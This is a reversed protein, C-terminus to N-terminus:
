LEDKLKSAASSVSSGSDEVISSASSFVDSAGDTAKSALSSLRAQASELAVALRSTASELAGQPEGYIQVSARSQVSSYADGVASSADSAKDAAVSTASAYAGSAANLISEVPGTPTGYVATSLAGQASVFAGEIAVSAAELYGTQTGYVAESARSSASDYVSAAASTAQEYPGKSTGYVYISAADVASNFQENASDIIDEISSLPTVYAAAVSSASEYADSAYSSASSLASAPYPTEYVAHLKSMVSETFDPEKGVVLESVLGKLSEYQAARQDLVQQIYPTPTGYVQESARSILSDWNESAQSAVSEMRGTPTGYIASSASGSVSSLSASAASMAASYRSSADAIISQADEGKSGAASSASSVVAALSSSALSSAQSYYSKANDLADQFGSPPPTPAGLVAESASNVFASYHDHALGVAEYYRRQADLLVPNQNSTPTPSITAKVSAYQASALSLGESLKSSAISSVSELPGAVSSTGYYAASAASVAQNYKETAVSVISEGPSPTTGYLVSSAAALASSYQDSAISAANEKFGQSSPKGLLADSVANTAEAYRDGAKSALNQLEESFKQQELDDDVVDNVIEKKGPISQAAAGGWVKPTSPQDQAHTDEDTSYSESTEDASSENSDVTNQAGADVPEADVDETAQLPKQNETNEQRQFSPDETAQNATEDSATHSSTTQDEVHEETSSSPKPRTPPEQRTDFDDSVERAEIKWKGVEKLRTLERAAKEAIAMGRSLIDNALDRAEGLRENQMGVDRVESRWNEFQAKLAHYKAWDKYTVGDMWAWRMGIEQLGLDRIGDLIDLTSEVAASVRRTLEDDFSSQWERLAHARDRIAVGAARIEKLLEGRADDETEPTAEDPLGKVIANIRTKIDALHQDAVAQLAEVLTEGHKRSGGEIQRDVIEKVREELDDVGKDAAAAFKEQWKQLDSAVIPRAEEIQQSPTLKTSKETAAPKSSTTTAAATTTQVKSSTTSSTSKLSEKVAASDIDVDDVVARLKKGERYSALREGIKVLQPEVNESYLGTISPWLTSNVFYVISSWATHTFPLVNDMLIVQGSSYTKAIFPRSRDYSPLVYVSYLEKAKGNVNDYHPKIVAVAREVHPGVNAEYIEKAGAQASRLRPVAETEWQKKGYVQAQSITPAGYTEYGSKAVKAVPSYVHDHFSSAYPRVVDVYPAGYIEYYPLVHPEVHSKALLYPKCVAPSSQDLESLNSPCRFFPTLLAYWICLRAVLGFTWKVFGPKRKPEKSSQVRGGLRNNSAEPVHGNQVGAM